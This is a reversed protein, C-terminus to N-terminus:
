MVDFGGIDAAQRAVVLQGRREDRLIVGLGVVRDLELPCYLARYVVGDDSLDARPM